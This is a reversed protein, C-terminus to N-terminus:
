KLTNKHVIHETDFERNEGRFWGTKTRIGKYSQLKESWGRGKDICKVIYKTRSREVKSIVKVKGLDFHNFTKNLKMGHKDSTQM